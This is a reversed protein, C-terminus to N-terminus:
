KEFIETLSNTMYLRESVCVCPDAHMCTPTPKQIFIFEDLYARLYMCM